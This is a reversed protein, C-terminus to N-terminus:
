CNRLEGNKSWNGPDHIIEDQIRNFFDINRGGKVRWFMEWLKRSSKDFIHVIVRVYSSIASAVLTAVDIVGWSKPKDGIRMFAIDLPEPIRGDLVLLLGVVRMIRWHSSEVAGKCLDPNESWLYPIKINKKCNKTQSDSYRIQQDLTYNPSNQNQKLQTWCSGVILTM